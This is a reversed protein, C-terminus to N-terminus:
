SLSFQEWNVGISALLYIREGQLLLMAKTTCFEARGLSHPNFKRETLLGFSSLHEPGGQLSAPRIVPLLPGFAAGFGVKLKLSLYSRM